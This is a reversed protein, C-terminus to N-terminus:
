IPYNEFLKDIQRRQGDNLTAYFKNFSPRVRRVADLSSALAVELRAAQANAGGGAPM